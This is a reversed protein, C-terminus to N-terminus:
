GGSLTREKPKQELMRALLVDLPILFPDVPEPLSAWSEGLPEIMKRVEDPRTMSAIERELQWLVRNQAAQEQHLVAIRHAALLREHRNQLQVAAVAGAALIMMLLKGFM